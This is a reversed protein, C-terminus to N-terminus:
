PLSKSSDRKELKATSTFEKFPGGAFTTSDKKRLTLAGSSKFARDSFECKAAKTDKGSNQVHKPTGKDRRSGSDKQKSRLVQNMLGIQALYATNAGSTVSWLEEKLSEVQKETLNPTSRVYYPPDPYYDLGLQSALKHYDSGPLVQLRYVNLHGLTNELVFGATQRITDENDGPLGVIIGIDVHIGRERLLACGEMFRTTGLGRKMLKLAERNSSQLGVEVFRVGAKAFGDAMAEDVLEARAEVSVRISRDANLDALMKCIDLCRQRPHNFTPDMLYVDAAGMNIAHAIEREVRHLSFHRLSDLTKGYLCFRCKYPCGRTTELDVWGGSRV